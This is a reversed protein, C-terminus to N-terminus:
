HYHIPNPALRLSDPWAFHAIPGFDKDLGRIGAGRCCRILVPMKRRRSGSVGALPLSGTPTIRRGDRHGFVCDMLGAGVTVFMASEPVNYRESTKPMGM